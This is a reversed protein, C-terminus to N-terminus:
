SKMLTLSSEGGDYVFSPNRSPLMSGPGFISLTSGTSSMSETRALDKLKDPKQSTADATDNQNTSGNSLKTINESQCVTSSSKSSATNGGESSTETSDSSKNVQKSRTM